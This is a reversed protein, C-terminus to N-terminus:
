KCDSSGKSFYEQKNGSWSLILKTNNDGYDREKVVELSACIPLQLGLRVEVRDEIGENTFIGHPADCMAVKGFAIKARSSLVAKTPPVIDAMVARLTLVAM